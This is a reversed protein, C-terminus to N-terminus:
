CDFFATENKGQLVINWVYREAGEPRALLTAARAGTSALVADGANAAEGDFYVRTILQRLLGRAFLVVLIHPAQKGLAGPLVTNATYRGDNDTFVRGWGACSGPVPAGFRGSGDPQWLELFADPVPAGQGDSITGTLVIRRGPTKADPFLHEGPEWKLGYHFFPGVTQSPTNIESM